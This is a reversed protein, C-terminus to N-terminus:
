PWQQQWAQVSSSQVNSSSDPMCRWNVEVALLTWLVLYARSSFRAELHEEGARQQQWNLQQRAAAAAAALKSSTVSHRPHPLLCMLQPLQQRLAPPLRLAQLSTVFVAAGWCCLHNLINTCHHVHYMHYPADHSMVPALVLLDHQLSSVAIVPILACLCCTVAIACLKLFSARDCCYIAGGSRCCWQFQQLVCPQM